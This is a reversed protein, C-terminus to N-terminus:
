YIMHEMLKKVDQTTIGEVEIDDDNEIEAKIFEARKQKYDEDEFYFDRNYEKNLKELFNECMERTMFEYPLIITYSEDVKDDDEYHTDDQYIGPGDFDNEFDLHTYVVTSDDKDIPKGNKTALKGLDYNNYGRHVAQNKWEEFLHHQMTIFTIVAEGDEAYFDTWTDFPNLARNTLKIPETHREPDHQENEKKIIRNIETM